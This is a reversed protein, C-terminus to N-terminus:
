KEMFISAASIAIKANNKEVISLIKYNISERVGLMESYDPSNVYYVVLIELANDSFEFLKVTQDELILTNEELVAKIEKSIVKLQSETTDLRLKLKFRVRQMSRQTLNDLEADVMKKNPVTVYSQELTRIRTSRFGIKEVVGTVEGVKVLDGSSFPKDLFITFSGLLNELTEKAALAVALGGIGLGAVLSGINLNFVSGLIVFVGIIIMVVKLVEFMFPIIQNDTKSETREARSIMIFSFVDTVRLFAWIVASIVVILYIREVIMKLGFENHSALHWSSPYVLQSSAIFLFILLILLATPKRMYEVFKEVSIDSSYRKFLRFLLRSSVKSFLRKFILGSIVIVVFEFYDLVNNGLFYYNLIENLREM